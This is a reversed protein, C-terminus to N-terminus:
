LFILNEFPMDTYGIGHPFILPLDRLKIRMTFCRCSCTCADLKKLFSKWTAPHEGAVGVTCRKSLLADLSSVTHFNGESANTLSIFQQVLGRFSATDKISWGRRDNATTSLLESDKLDTKSSQPESSSLPTSKLDTICFLPNYM